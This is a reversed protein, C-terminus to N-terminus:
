IKIITKRRSTAIVTVYAIVAIALLTEISAVFYKNWDFVTTLVAFVLMVAASLIACVLYKRMARSYTKKM